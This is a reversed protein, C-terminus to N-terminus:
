VVDLMMHRTARVLSGVEDREAVNMVVLHVAALEGTVIFHLSPHSGSLDCASGHGPATLLNRFSKRTGETGPGPDPREQPGPPRQGPALLPGGANRRPRSCPSLGREKSATM